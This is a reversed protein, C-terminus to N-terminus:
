TDTHSIDHYTGNVSAPTSPGSPSHMSVGPSCVSLLDAVSHQQTKSKVPLLTPFLIIVTNLLTINGM